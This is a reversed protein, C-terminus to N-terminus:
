QKGPMPSQRFLNLVAVLAGMGGAIGFHKWNIPSGAALASSGATAAGSVAATLITNWWPGM